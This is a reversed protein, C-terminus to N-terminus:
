KKRHFRRAGIPKGAAYEILEIHQTDYILPYNIRVASGGSGCTGDDLQLLYTPISGKAGAVFKTGRANVYVTGPKEQRVAFQRVCRPVSKDRGHWAITDGKVTLTTYPSGAQDDALWRGAFPVPDALVSASCGLGAVVAVLRACSMVREAM